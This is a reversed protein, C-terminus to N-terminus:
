FFLREFRLALRCLGLCHAVSPRPSRRPFLTDRLHLRTPLPFCLSFSGLALGRSRRRNVQSLQRPNPCGFLASSSSFSIAGRRSLVHQPVPRDLPLVPLQYCVEMSYARGAAPGQAPFPGRSCPVPGLGPSPPRTGVRSRSAASVGEGGSCHAQAAPPFASCRGRRCNRPGARAWSRPALLPLVPLTLSLVGGGWPEAGLPASCLCLLATCSSVAPARPSVRTRPARSWCWSRGGGGDQGEGGASGSKVGGATRAPRLECKAAASGAGVM